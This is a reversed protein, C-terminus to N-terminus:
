HLKEYLYSLSFFDGKASVKVGRNQVRSFNVCFRKSVMSSSQSHLRVSNEFVEKNVEYSNEDYKPNKLIYELSIEGMNEVRIELIERKKDGFFVKKIQEEPM